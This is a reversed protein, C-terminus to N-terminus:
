KEPQKNSFRYTNEPVHIEFRAGKGAEGTERITIGTIGLIERSLFLGHGTNKGYGRAFIKEKEEDPIGVGNDEYLITLGDPDKRYHLRIGTINEGHRLSNDVLNFFVKELMLDAFVELDGLEKKLIVTEPLHAQSMVRGPKQWEPEKTGLTQYIKTFAVQSKITKTLSDIKDLLAIVDQQLGRRRALAIHGEIASIKNLVDHRTVSSLLNLQKNTQLIAHEMRKRASIDRISILIAPSNKFLIRKGIGEVWIRRGSRTVAQYNVPYNDTEGAVTIIDRIVDARSEPAVFELANIKGELEPNVEMEVMAAAARNGFLITGTMDLILIGDLSHEVLTRFKEESEQLTREIRAREIETTKRDTIDRMSVLMAASGGFHIKKGICEVWIERGTETILKYHVLYADTGQAVKGFDQLVNVRSEPAVFDLVNKKGILSLYDAADVIRGAAQNAFVLTGTFDTILIGDLSNEVLARFKEESERLADEAEKRSSVDRMIGSVAIISGTADFVPAGSSEMWIIKGAKDRARLLSIRPEKTSLITGVYEIVKVTDEAAFFKTFHQSIVEKQTFGYRSIQPSVHTINGQLDITFIIDNTTETLLRYKEESARLEQERRTLEEYNARLEEETAMLEELAANLDENKRLLEEEVRKLKTTEVTMTLIAPQNSITVPIVSFLVHVSRGEKGKLAMPVNEMKGSLLLNSSLRGFDLLSILGMEVPSRGLVESETYGSANLFAANVKIFKGDPISNIAIPYPSDEFVTRFKEESEKLEQGQRQLEEYNARLEEETATVKVYAANLDDAAKKRETNDLFTELLCERGRFNFQVVYKIINIKNGKATLLVRESNDVNQHLDTIPCKGQEAPCIFQHCVRGVINDRTAGMMHAAAPNLDLIEHTRADILIIGGQVSSYIQNLYDRSDALAKEMKKRDTIDRLVGEVGMFNGAGDYYKHSTTSVLVPTGDLKKLTVEYNYVSGTKELETLFKQREEPDHYMTKAINKGIFDSVNAYGFVNVASPSVILLNGGTDTRYYVDQINEIITRYKEESKRLTEEAQKRDTIDQCVVLVSLGGSPDPMARAYEDVWIMTGDKKVKRFQWHFSKGPSKLSIQLQETVAARDDPYFVKLVSQGELEGATYGLQDAGAKNVSMVNGNQDLTFLMVPNDNYLARFREESERLANETKRRGTIDSLFVLDAPQNDWTILSANIEMWRASGDKTLIRFAYTEKLEEGKLRQMHQRGVLARDDPHVFELFPKAALEEKSYGGIEVIKPNAFIIRGDHIVFISENANDFLNRFREESERLAIEALKRDTVDKFIGRTYQPKGETIKSTSLGEAYVKRGDRARFVVEIIGVNEGAMVRPFLTRCHEMSEEHIIDFIRLDALDKEEYGLTDLWKRNVFLFHGDPAVSQIMDTANQIDHYRQEQEALSAQAQRMQITRRTVHMLETYLAEPDGGKQLYFDAGYNLAEIVVEERGRGTFIIFPIGGFTSRVVKLFDIGNMVPMQFDSIIADFRQQKLLRLGKEASDETNVVFEQSSEFFLKALELLDQEDDVYLISYM